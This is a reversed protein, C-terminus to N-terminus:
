SRSVLKEALQRGAAEGSAVAGEIMPMTLYDGALTIPFPLAEALKRGHSRDTLFGPAALPNGPEFRYLRARTVHNKLQPVLLEVEPLMAAVIVDSPEGQLRQAADPTPWALVVDGYPLAEPGLKTGLIACASVEKAEAPHRMIGFADHKLVVDTALALTWTPRLHLASLWQSMAASEQTNGALLDRASRPDTAIVAGDGTWERGDATRAVMGAHPQFVLSEVRAGLVCEVGTSAHALAASWGRTAALMGADSGYRALTLYFAFSMEGGGAAYFANFAPEVLANAAREGVHTAMHARASERDLVADVHHADANLRGHHRALLPVIHAGLKLKEIAGLGGFRLLSTMSGFQIPHRASGHVFVDRGPMARLISEKDPITSGAPRHGSVVLRRLLAVTRDFSAGILQAGVDIVTGGFDDSRARGGLATNSDILTVAIGRARLHAAAAVGAFGGGIVLASRM